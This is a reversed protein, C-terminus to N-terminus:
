FLIRVKNNNEKQFFLCVLLLGTSCCCVGGPIAGCGMPDCLTLMASCSFLLSCITAEKEKRKTEILPFGGKQFKWRIKGQSQERLGCLHHSKYGQPHSLGVGMSNDRCPLETAESHFSIQSYPQSNYTSSGMGLYHTDARFCDCHQSSSERQFVTGM